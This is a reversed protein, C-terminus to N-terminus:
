VEVLKDPLENADGALPPFHAALADGCAKVAHVLGDALRGEGIESTLKDVIERWFDEKVKADIATDAVIEAHREALSVFILVGTRSPAGHINHALFQERARASARAQRIARPVLLVRAGPAIALCALLVFAAGEALALSGAAIGPSLIAAVFGGLLTVLAALLLPLLRYDDSAGAVAVFLEGSTKAEAARIAEVIRRRDAAEVLRKVM